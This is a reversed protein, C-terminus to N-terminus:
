ASGRDPVRAAALPLAVHFVSGRSPVEIRVGGRHAILVRLSVPLGLGRHRIKTTFFPEVFLRKRQDDRIGPGEDAIRLEVYPGASAAGLYERAELESLEILAASVRIAGGAPSAEVANDLINGLVQQLAGGDMAVPPLDSPSAFQLKVNLNAIKKLRAEERGLVSSVATPTPRASGCRSM